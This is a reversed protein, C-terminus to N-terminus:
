RRRDRAPAAAADGAPAVSASSPRVWARTGAGRPMATCSRTLMSVIAARRCALGAPPQQARELRRRAGADADVAEAVGAVAGARAEVRQERLHDNMASRAAEGVGHAPRVARQALEADLADAVFM